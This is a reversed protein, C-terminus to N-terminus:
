DARLARRDRYRSGLALGSGGALSIGGGVFALWYWDLPTASSSEGVQKRIIGDPKLRGLFSEPAFESEPIPGFRCETVELRGSLKPTTPVLRTSTLARFIPRGGQHDYEYRNEFSQGSVEEHSSRVVFLDDADFVFTHDQRDRGKVEPSTRLRLTVLRHGDGTTANLKVVGYDTSFGEEACAITLDGGSYKRQLGFLILGGHIAPEGLRISDNLDIWDLASRYSQERSARSGESIRWPEPPGLSRRALISCDPNALYMLENSNDTRRLRGFPGSRLLEQREKNEHADSSSHLVTTLRIHQYPALLREAAAFYDALFSDWAAPDIGPALKLGKLWRRAHPGARRALQETDAWFAADLEDLGIGLTARCDVEFTAQQCTTYLKLFREPGYMRLLYNVLPAGQIYAAPGSYWYWDPAVLQRLTLSRGHEHDDWAPYALAEASYGEDAQAWGEILVRPPDSRATCNRTIVCHAVEHRDLDTLGDAGRQARDLYLGVQSGIAMDYIACHGVGLLPGRYWVIPWTASQDLRALSAEVHRDMAAVLAKADKATAGVMTVWKGPTREPYFWRAELDALPRALPLLVKSPWGPPVHPDFAPRMAMRIHGALFWFPATGVLLGVLARDRRPGRILRVTAAIMLGIGAALMLVSLGVPLIPNSNRVQSATLAAALGLAGLWAGWVTVVWRALM